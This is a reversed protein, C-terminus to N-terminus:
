IIMGITNFSYSFFGTSVILGVIIVGAEQATTANIDGYGVTTM